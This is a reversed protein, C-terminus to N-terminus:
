CRAHLRYRSNVTTSYRSKFYLLYLELGTVRESARPDEGNSESAVFSHWKRLCRRLTRTEQTLIKEEEAASFFRTRASCLAVCITASPGKKTANRRSRATGRPYPAALGRAASIWSNWRYLALRVTTRPGNPRTRRRDAARVGVIGHASLNVEFDAVRPDPGRGNRTAQKGGNKSGPGGPGGAAASRRRSLGNLPAPADILRAVRDAGSRLSSCM